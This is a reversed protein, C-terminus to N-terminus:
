GSLVLRARRSCNPWYCRLKYSSTEYLAVDLYTSLLRRFRRVHFATWDNYVIDIHGPTKLINTSLSQNQLRRANRLIESAPTMHWRGIKGRYRVHSPFLYIVALYEDYQEIHRGLNDEDLKLCMLRCLITRTRKKVRRNWCRRAHGFAM